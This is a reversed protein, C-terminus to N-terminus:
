PATEGRCLVSCAGDHLEVAALAPLWIAVERFIWVAIEEITRLGLKATVDAGRLRSLAVEAGIALHDLDLVKGDNGLPGRVTVVVEFADEHRPGGPAQHAATFAFRRSLTAITM